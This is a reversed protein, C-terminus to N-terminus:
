HNILLKGLIDSRNTGTVRALINEIGANPAIFYTSRGAGVNFERFSHFLNIGRVAGGTIREQTPRVEVVSREGGLTGDPVMVSQAMVGDGAFGIVGLGVWFELLSRSAKSGRLFNGKIM